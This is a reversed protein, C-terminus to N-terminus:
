GGEGDEETKEADGTGGVGVRQEGVLLEDIEGPVAGDDRQELAAIGVEGGLLDLVGAGVGVTAADDLVDAVIGEAVLEERVEGVVDPRTIKHHVEEAVGAVGVLEGEGDAGEGVVDAVADAVGLGGVEGDGDLEGLERWSYPWLTM